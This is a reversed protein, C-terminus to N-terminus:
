GVDLLKLIQKWEEGIALERQSNTKSQKEVNYSIAVNLKDEGSLEFEMTLSGDHMDINARSTNLFPRGLLMPASNPSNDSEMDLIYFDALFVLENVQVLVDEIVRYPYANSRDTLQMIVGTEELSRLNLSTYISRPMFNISARFDLMAREFRTNNITCPITFTSPDKCKPPVQKQLVTSVNQGVSVKENGKLNRKSTCLEKLFKVYRPVQKIELFPIKIEVKRFMDLIEKEQEEKMAKAFTIPFPPVYKYDSLPTFPSVKSPDEAEQEKQLWKKKKM